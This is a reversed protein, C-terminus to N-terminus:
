GFTKLYDEALEVSVRTFDPGQEKALDTEAHSGIWALAGHPPAHRLDPDRRDGGPCAGCGITARSGRM